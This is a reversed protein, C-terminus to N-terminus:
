GLREARNCEQEGPRTMAVMSIRTMSLASPISTLTTASESGAPRARNRHGARRFRMGVAVASRSVIGSVTM